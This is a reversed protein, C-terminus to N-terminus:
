SRRCTHVLESHEEGVVEGDGWGEMGVLGGGVVEGDGWGKMGVIGGGVM